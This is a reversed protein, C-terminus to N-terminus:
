YSLEMEEGFRSISFFPPLSCKKFGPPIIFDFTLLDIDARIVIERVRKKNELNKHAAIGVGSFSPGLGAATVLGTSVGFFASFNIM